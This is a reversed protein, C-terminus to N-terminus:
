DAPMETIKLVDSIREYNNDNLENVKYTFEKIKKNKTFLIEFWRYVWAFPLLFPLYKLIKYKSKMGSYSPFLTKFIYKNKISKASNNETYGKMLMSDDSMGYTASQLIFKAVTESDDDMPKDGFWGGAISEMIKSFKYLKLKDLQEKIYNEDMKVSKKYYYIDLVTRIGFGGHSFHKAAHVMSYIYFDEDSFNFKIGDETKLKEWINNYYEYYIERNAALDYHTEISIIDKVWHGHYEDGADLTFGLDKLIGDVQEKKDKDYLIDVDCSTRMEPAPYLRRMYYGKLPMFKIKKETLANFVLDAYYEQSIQQATNIAFSCKATTLVDEPVKKSDKVALYFINGLSHRKAFAFVQLWEGCDPLEKGNIFANIIKILANDVSKIKKM